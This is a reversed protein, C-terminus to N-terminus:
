KQIVCTKHQDTFCQLKCNNKHHSVSLKLDSTFWAAYHLMQILIVGSEFVVWYQVIITCDNTLSVAIIEKSYVFFHTLLGMLLIYVWKNMVCRPCM